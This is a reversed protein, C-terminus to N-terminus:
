TGYVIKDINKSLSKNIGSRKKVINKKAIEFFTPASSIGVPKTFTKVSFKATITKISM